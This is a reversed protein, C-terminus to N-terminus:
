CINSCGRFHWAGHQCNSMFVLTLSPGEEPLQTRTSHRKPMLQTSASSPALTLFAGGMGGQPYRSHFGRVSVWSPGQSETLPDPFSFWMPSRSTGRGNKGSFQATWTHGGAVPAVCKFPFVNLSFKVKETVGTM